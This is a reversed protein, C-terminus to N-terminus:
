LASLRIRIRSVSRPSSKKSGAVPRACPKEFLIREPVDTEEWAKCVPLM